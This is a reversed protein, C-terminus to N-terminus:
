PRRFNVFFFKLIVGRRQATGRAFYGTGRQLRRFNLVKCLKFTRCTLSDLDHVINKEHDSTGSQPM